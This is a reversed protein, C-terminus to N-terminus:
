SGSPQIPAWLWRVDCPILVHDRSLPQGQVPPRQPSWTLSSLNEPSGPRLHLALLTM